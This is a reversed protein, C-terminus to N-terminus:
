SGFKLHVTRLFRQVFGKFAIKTHILSTIPMSWFNKGLTNLYFQNQKAKNLVNGYNFVRKRAVYDHYFQLSMLANRFFTIKLRQVLIEWEVKYQFTMMKIIHTTCMRIYLHICSDLASSGRLPTIKYPKSSIMTKKDNVGKLIM